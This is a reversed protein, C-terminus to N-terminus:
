TSAQRDLNAKKLLVQFRPDSRLNAWFPDIRWQRPSFRKAEVALDLSRFCADLDGMMGYAVAISTYPRDAAPLAEIPRLLEKAREPDGTWAAHIAYATAGDPRGPLLQNLRDLETRFREKDGTTISLTAWGNHYLLGFNEVWGLKELTAQAEDLRRMGVLLNFKESLFLTSLPDLQETLDFERLAEEPRAEDALLSGYLGRAWALSPNLSLARKLEEESAAFEYDDWLVWALSSHAEALDPDLEIARAASKRSTAEWEPRPLHHYIGGLLRHVDALGAYAAANHDDLTIAREFHDKAARLDAEAMSHMSTRGQLYELYSEPRPFTRHTLRATETAGLEVKLAETVQKAIEAQVAFVRELKRDYTNAWAHEQTDVDILQATIRLEDGAKRVSGELVVDVGLEAGIEAVSKATSKYRAVSTRAIVRLERLQSLVTIIEETLGDAFYEDKPDPSINAFPLVALRRPGSRTSPVDPVEWPLAVRYIDMPTQVGKLVTPPLKELRNSIKNRVQSFVEGSICVGGPVALPEIRSAINVADGFIDSEREEVDGLHVGVRLQIPAVGPRSNRERLQHQIDIACQVARLASDFEVLFGDGMSKIERGQHAVFLPRVLGAQEDRLQLALAENAQAAATSGVMDTFM